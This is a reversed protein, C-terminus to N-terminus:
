AVAEKYPMFIRRLECIYRLGRDVNIKLFELALRIYDWPDSREQLDDNSEGDKVKGHRRLWRTFDMDSAGQLLILLKKFKGPAHEYVNRVDIELDRDEEVRMNEQAELINQVADFSVTNSYFTKDTNQLVRARKKHTYRNILNIGHNHIVRKTFNTAHEKSHIRPYIQFLGQIGKSVLEYELDEVDLSQSRMIFAMKRYVFKRVWVKIEKTIELIVKDFSEPKLAKFEQAAKRLASETKADILSLLRRDCSAVGFERRRREIESQVFRNDRNHQSLGTRYCYFLWLKVHKLLYGNVLLSNRFATFNADKMGVLHLVRKRMEKFTIIRFLYSLVHTCCQEQLSNPLQAFEPLHERLM